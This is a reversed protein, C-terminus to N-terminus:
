NQQPMLHITMSEMHSKARAINEQSASQSMFARYTIYDALAARFRDLLCITDTVATIEALTIRTGAAALRSDSRVDWILLIGDNIFMMYQDNTVRPNAADTDNTFVRARDIVDQGTM